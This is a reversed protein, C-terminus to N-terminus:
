VRILLTQLTPSFSFSATIICFLIHLRSFKRREVEHEAVRPPQQKSNGLANERESHSPSFNRIVKKNTKWMWVTLTYIHCSSSRSTLNLGHLSHKAVKSKNANEWRLSADHRVVVNWMYRSLECSHLHQQKFRKMNMKEDREVRCMIWEFSFNQRKPNTQAVSTTTPLNLQLGHPSVERMVRLRLPPSFFSKKTIDDLCLERKERMYFCNLGQDSKM